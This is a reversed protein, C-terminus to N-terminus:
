RIYYGGDADRQGRADHFLEATVLYDDTDALFHHPNSFYNRSLLGVNGFSDRDGPM